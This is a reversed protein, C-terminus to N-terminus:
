CWIHLALTHPCTCLHQIQKPYDRTQIKPSYMKTMHPIRFPFSLNKVKCIGLDLCKRTSIRRHSKRCLRPHKTAKQLKRILNGRSAQRTGNFSFDLLPKSLLIGTEWALGFMGVEMYLSLKWKWTSQAPSTSSPLSYPLHKPSVTHFPYNCILLPLSTATNM